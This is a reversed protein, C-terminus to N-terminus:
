PRTQIHFHPATVKQVQQAAKHNIPVITEGPSGDGKKGYPWRENVERRIKDDCGKPLHTSRMDVARWASHIGGNYFVDTVVGPLGYDSCRKAVYEVIPRLKPNLKDSLYEQAASETKAYLNKTADIVFLGTTEM